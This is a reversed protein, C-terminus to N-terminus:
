FFFYIVRKILKTWARKYSLKWLNCVGVSRLSNNCVLLLAREESMDKKIYFFSLFIVLLYCSKVRSWRWESKRRWTIMGKFMPIIKCYCMLIFKNSISTCIKHRDRHGRPRLRSSDENARVSPDHTRIGSLAHINTHANIRYKHQGSHLYRGQSPSIGM